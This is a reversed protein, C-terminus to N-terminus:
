ISALLDHYFRFYKTKECEKYFPKIYFTKCIKFSDDDSSGLVKEKRM